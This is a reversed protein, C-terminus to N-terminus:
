LCLQPKKLKLNNEQSQEFTEQNNELKGGLVLSTQLVEMKAATLWIIQSHELARGDQLLWTLTIGIM